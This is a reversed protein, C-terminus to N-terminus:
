SKLWTEWQAYETRTTQMKRITEINQHKNMLM